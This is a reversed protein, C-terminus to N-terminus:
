GGRNILLHKWLLQAEAKNRCCIEALRAFWGTLETARPERLACLVFKDPIKVMAGSQLNILTDGEAMSGSIESCKGVFTYPGVRSHSLSSAGEIFVGDEIITGAGIVTQPGIFANKGIWCPAHLEADPAINSNLGVWVGPKTELAGVRDPTLARPMWELMGQFFQQFTTFIPTKEGPFHDMIAVAEKPADPELCHEYAARAQAPLLERSEEIVQVKLGWRAGNEVIAQLGETQDHSLVAVEKVGSCALHSLWYEVIGQGMLPVTALPGNEALVRLGPSPAPCILLAKKM